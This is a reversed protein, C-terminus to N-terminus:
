RGERHLIIEDFLFSLFRTAPSVPDSFTCVRGGTGDSRFPSLADFSDTLSRIASSSWQPGM